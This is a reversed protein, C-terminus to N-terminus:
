LIRQLAQVAAQKLRPGGHALADTLYPRDRHIVGAYSLTSGVEISQPGTRRWQVDKILAGSRRVPRAYGGEMQARVLRVSADGLATLLGERLVGASSRLAELRSQVM